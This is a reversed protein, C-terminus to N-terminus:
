RGCVMVERVFSTKDSKCLPCCQKYSRPITEIHLEDTVMSRIHRVQLEPIDLMENIYQIQMQKNGKKTTETLSVVICSYCINKM